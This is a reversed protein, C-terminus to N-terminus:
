GLGVSGSLPSAAARIIRLGRWYACRTRSQTALYACCTANCSSLLSSPSPSSSSSSSSSSYARYLLASLARANRASLGTPAGGVLMTAAAATTNHPRAISPYSTHSVVFWSGARRASFGESYPCETSSSYLRSSSGTSCSRPLWQTPGHRQHWRNVCALLVTAGNFVM